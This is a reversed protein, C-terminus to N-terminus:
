SEEEHKYVYYIIVRDDGKVPRIELIKINDNQLWKCLEHMSNVILYFGRTHEMISVELIHKIAYYPVNKDRINLFTM